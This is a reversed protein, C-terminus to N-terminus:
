CVFCLIVTIPYTIKIQLLVDAVILIVQIYVVSPLDEKKNM